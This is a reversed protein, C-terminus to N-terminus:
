QLSKIVEKILQGNCTQAIPEFNQLQRNTGRKTITLTKDPELVVLVSATLLDTDEHHGMEM